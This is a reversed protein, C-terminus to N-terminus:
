FDTNKRECSAARCNTFCFLRPLIMLRAEMIDNRPPNLVAAYVALLDATAPRVLTHALSHPARPILTFASAGPQILVPREAASTASVALYSDTLARMGIPSQPSGSTKLPTATRSALLADLLEPISAFSM